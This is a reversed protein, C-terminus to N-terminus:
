TIFTPIPDCLLRCEDMDKVTGVNEGDRDQCFENLIEEAKEGELEM